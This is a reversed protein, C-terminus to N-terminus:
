CYSGFSGMGPFFPKWLKTAWKSQWKKIQQYSELELISENLEEMVLFANFHTLTQSYGLQFFEFVVM